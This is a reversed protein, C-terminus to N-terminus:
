VHRKDRTNESAAKDGEATIAYLGAKDILWEKKLCFQIIKRLNDKIFTTEPEPGIQNFYGVDYACKHKEIFYLYLFDKAWKELLEESIVKKAMKDEKFFGLTVMSVGPIVVLCYKFYIPV